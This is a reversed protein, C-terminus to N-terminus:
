EVDGDAVDVLGDLEDGGQSSPGGAFSVVILLTRDDDHGIGLTVLEAQHLVVSWCGGGPGFCRRAGARALSLRVAGGRRRRRHVMGVRVARGPTEGLAQWASVSERSSRDDRRGGGTMRSLLIPAHIVLPAIPRKGRHQIVHGHAPERRSVATHRDHRRWRAPIRPYDPEGGVRNDEDVSIRIPDGGLQGAIQGPRQARREYLHQRLVSAAIRVGDVHETGGGGPGGATASVEPGSRAWGRSARASRYRLATRAQRVSPPIRSSPRPMASRHSTAISTSGPRRPAPSPRPRAAAARWISGGPVGSHACIAGAFAALTRANRAAPNM